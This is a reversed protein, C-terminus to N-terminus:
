IEKVKIHKYKKFYILAEIIEDLEKNSESIITDPIDELYWKLVVNLIQEETLELDEM